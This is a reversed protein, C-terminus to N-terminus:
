YRFEKEDLDYTGLEYAINELSQDENRNTERHCTLKILIGVIFAMMKKEDENMVIGEWSDCVSTRMDMRNM